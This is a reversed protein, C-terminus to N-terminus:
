LTSLLTSSVARGPCGPGQAAILAEGRGSGLTFSASRGAPRRSGSSPPGQRGQGSSRGLPGVREPGGLGQEVGM